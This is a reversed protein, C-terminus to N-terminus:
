SALAPPVVPEWFVLYSDCEPCTFNTEIYQNDNADTKDIQGGVIM